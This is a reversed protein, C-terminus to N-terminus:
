REQHKDSSRALRPKKLKADEAESSQARKRLRM